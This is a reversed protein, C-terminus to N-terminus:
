SEDKENIVLTDDPVAQTPITQTPEVVETEAATVESAEVAAARAAALREKARRQNVVSAALGIIGAGILVVPFGAALDSVDKDNAEGIWWIAAIGSFVLGFVLHVVGLPRNSSNNDNM